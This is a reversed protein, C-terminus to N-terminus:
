STRLRPNLLMAAVDAILNALIYVGSVILTAAEIVPADRVSISNVLLTGVGPYAFVNEVVVVGGILYALNLATINLAPGLANPLAHRLVIRRRPLGNLTAMRVYDSNLVDILNDRLMRVAYVSMAITLTLAPLAATRLFDLPGQVQEITAMAPLVPWIVAFAILLLTGLAFEPLSLGVLTVITIGADLPRGRFVASLAALLVSIPVYLVLAYLGLLLTNSLAPAVIGSVSLQSALSRGFDGHVVGNLWIAYRVPVPQDLHMQKDFLARQAPTSERGLVRAAVDGPLIATTWYIFASVVLLTVLALFLRKIVLKVIM